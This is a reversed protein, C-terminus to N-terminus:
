KEPNLIKIRIKPTRAKIAGAWRHHGNLILYGGAKLKNVQIPEDFVNLGLAENRRAIQSYNEIISENPGIDPFSFEDNPNVHLVDPSVKKVMMIEIPNAKVVERKDQMAEMDERIRVIIASREYAM